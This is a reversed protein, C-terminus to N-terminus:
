FDGIAEGGGRTGLSKWVPLSISDSVTRVSGDMLGVHVIGGHYSRSTIAAYTPQLLSTGEYRSSFDIDYTKGDSHVYPVKSNPLFVTTFGSEHVTGECWENHGGNDNVAPGLEFNAGGAFDSLRSPSAPITPGPDATNLFYIDFLDNKIPSKQERWFKGSNITTFIKGEAGVAWGVNQNIFFVANLKTTAKNTFNATNWSNGGDETFFSTGGGGVIVGQNQNFFNGDLLLFRSPM